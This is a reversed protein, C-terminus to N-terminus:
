SPVDERLFTKTEALAEGRLMVMTFINIYIEHIEMHLGIDIKNM